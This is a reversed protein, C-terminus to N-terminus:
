KKRHVSANLLVYCIFICLACSVLLVSWSAFLNFMNPDYMTADLEPRPLGTDATIEMSQYGQPTEVTISEGYMSLPLNDLDASSGMAQMGWRCFIFNSITYVIGKLEVVIGSFLIQPMILIPAMAIARDPNKFLASVLLGLCMASMTTLFISAFLELPRAMTSGFLPDPAMSAPVIACFVTTILISQLFCLVGLVLVKSGLYATIRLGGEYERLFIMREKCIEQIADLIGVWFAACSLAFLCSKTNEYIEFCNEGAVYAILAALLPAQLILLALRSRDNFILKAYRKCLTRFQKESPAKADKLVPIMAQKNVRATALDTRTAALKQVYFDPEAEMKEYVTLYSNEGFFAPGQVANGFYCLKGGPGLIIVKDCLHLNTTTHTVMIVTRGERAMLACLEMMHRETKPDLGSTPEDLFLLQPDALLEVGISARKKQGGSMNGILSDAVETLQLKHIVSEVREAREEVTSESSMRLEAAFMLMDRLTLNDYVIDAQPVYGIHERMAEYNAYLDIGNVYVRGEDAPEGGSLENLLTSKGAGSGGIIAVFEGPLIHLSVHDTTMRKKRGRGRYRVLEYAVLDAGGRAVQKGQQYRAPASAQQQAAQQSKGVVFVQLDSDAASKTNAKASSGADASSQKEDSTPQGCVTCFHVDTDNLRAGCKGCFM